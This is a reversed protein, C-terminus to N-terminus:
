HPLGCRGPLPQGYPLSCSVLPNVNKRRDCIATFGGEPPRCNRRRSLAATSCKPEGSRAAPRRRLGRVTSPFASQALQSDVRSVEAGLRQPERKALRDSRLDRTRPTRQRHTDRRWGVFGCEHRGCYSHYPRARSRGQQWRGREVREAGMGSRRDLRAGEAPIGRPTAVDHLRANGIRGRIRVVRELRPGFRRNRSCGSASSGSQRAGAVESPRRRSTAAAVSRM